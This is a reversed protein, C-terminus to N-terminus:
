LTWEIVTEVNLERAIEAISKDAHEYQLMSTRAIVNLASIKARENLLTDHKGKAFYIDDSNGSLSEFPLDTISSPLPRFHQLAGYAIWAVAVM